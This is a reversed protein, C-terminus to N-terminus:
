FRQLTCKAVSRTHSQVVHGSRFRSASSYLRGVGCEGRQQMTNKTNTKVLAERSFSCFVTIFLVCSWVKCRRCTNLSVVWLGKVHISGLFMRLLAEYIHQRPSKTTVVFNLLWLTWSHFIVAKQSMRRTTEYLYVSMESTRAAEMM